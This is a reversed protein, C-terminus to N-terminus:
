PLHYIDEAEAERLAERFGTNLNSAIRRDEMSANAPIVQPGEAGHSSHYLAIGANLRMYRMRFMRIGYATGVVFFLCAALIMQRFARRQREVPFRTITDLGFAYICVLLLDSYLKYRSSLSQTYGMGGRTVSVGLATILLFMAFGVIVVNRRDYRRIAALTICVAMVAGFPISVYRIVPLTFGGYGGLFSLIFLPHLGANAGPASHRYHTFYVAACLAMSLTWPFMRLFRRQQLLILLGVPYVFFGNGSAAIALALGCCAGAFSGIDSKSLLWIALLAFVMVGVNQIGPMPWNLTESYNTQFVILAVPVFLVLRRTRTVTDPAFCKWFLWALLMVQLNGLLSLVVFDVHGSLKWQLAILANAWIPKYENHQEFLITGLRAALTPARHLHLLYFLVADYDDFVPLPSLYRICSVWFVALPLLIGVWAM